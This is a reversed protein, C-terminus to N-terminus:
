RINDDFQNAVDLTQISEPQFTVTYMVTASEAYDLQDGQIQTITPNQLITERYKNRYGNQVIKIQPFFYRDNTPTYGLDTIFQPNVTSNGELSVRREIGDTGNYYHAIYDRMLNHWENDYTDYFAITVPDYNLKTQIVRKKNYQNMITTDASFGPVTASAVRSFTISARDFRDMIVTFNYKQRPVLLQDGDSRYVEQAFNTIAM